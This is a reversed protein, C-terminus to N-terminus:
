ALNEQNGIIVVHQSTFGLSKAAEQFGLELSLYRRPGATTVGALREDLSFHTYSDDTPKILTLMNRSSQHLTSFGQYNFHQTIDGFVKGIIKGSETLSAASDYSGMVGLTASCRVSRRSPCKFHTQVFVICQETTVGAAIALQRTYNEYNATAGFVDKVSYLELHLLTPAGPRTYRTAKAPKDSFEPNIHVGADSLESATSKPIMMFEERHLEAEHKEWANAVALVNGTTGWIRILHSALRQDADADFGISEVNVDKSLHNSLILWAAISSATCYGMNFIRSDHNLTRAHHDIPVQGKTLPHRPEVSVVSVRKNSLSQLYISKVWAPVTAELRPLLQDIM